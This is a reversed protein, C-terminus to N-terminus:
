GRKVPRYDIVWAPFCDFGTERWFRTRHNGDIITVKGRRDVQLKLPPFTADRQMEDWDYSGGDEDNEDPNEEALQEDPVDGNPVYAAYVTVKTRDAVPVYDKLISEKSVRRVTDPLDQATWDVNPASGEPTPSGLKDVRARSLKPRAGIKYGESTKFTPTQRAIAQNVATGNPGGFLGVHSQRDSYELRGLMWEQAEQPSKFRMRSAYQMWWALKDPKTWFNAPDDAEHIIERYRM